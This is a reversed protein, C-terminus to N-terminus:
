TEDPLTNFQRDGADGLGPVIYGVDNLERDIAPTYLPVNPCDEAFREIGQPASIITLCRINTCGFAELRRVSEVASGATALMPDVLLTLGRKAQVPLSEYYSVPVLKEEDRFLGIHGMHADPFVRLVGHAMGVGARLVPVISLPETRREGTCTELPTQVQVPKVPLDRTAEYALLCGFMELLERFRPPQTRRDRVETVMDRMLPHDVLHVSPPLSQSNSM